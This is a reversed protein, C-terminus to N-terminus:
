ASKKPPAIELLKVSSIVFEHNPVAVRSGDALLLLTRHLEIKDVTGEYTAFAIRDGESFPHNFLLILGGVVSRFLWITSVAATAVLMLGFNLLFTVIPGVHFGFRELALLGVFVAALIKVARLAIPVLVDDVKTETKALFPALYHEYIGDITRFLIWAAAIYVLASYIQHILAAFGGTLGKAGMSLGIAFVILVVPGGIIGVVLDDLKTETKQALKKLKGKIIANVIYGVIWAGIVIALFILYALVTNEWVEFNLINLIDM